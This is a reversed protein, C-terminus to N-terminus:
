KRSCIEYMPIRAPVWCEYFGSRDKQWQKWSDLLDGPSLEYIDYLDCFVDQPYIRKHRRKDGSELLLWLSSEEYDISKICWTGDFTYSKTGIHYTGIIDALAKNDKFEDFVGLCEQYAPIGVITGKETGFLCVPQEPYVYCKPTIVVRCLDLPNNHEEEMRFGYDQLCTASTKVIAFGYDHSEQMIHKAIGMGIYRVIYGMYPGWCGKLQYFKGDPIVLNKM